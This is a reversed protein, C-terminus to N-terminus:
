PPDYKPIKQVTLKARKQQDQLKASSLETAM